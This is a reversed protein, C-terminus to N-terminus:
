VKKETSKEDQGTIPKERERGQKMPERAKNRGEKRRNKRGEGKM